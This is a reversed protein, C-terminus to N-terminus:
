LGGAQKFHHIMVPITPGGPEGSPDEIYGWVYFKCTTAEIKAQCRENSAGGEDLMPFLVWAISAAPYSVDYYLDTYDNSIGEHPRWAAQRYESANYIEVVAMVANAPPSLGSFDVTAYSGSSGLSVDGSETLSTANSTIEGILIINTSTSESYVEINKSADVPVLFCSNRNM